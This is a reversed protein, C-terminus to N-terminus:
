KSRRRRYAIAGALGLGLLVFTSPEPVATVQFVLDNFDGAKEWVAGNHPTQLTTYPQLSTWSDEVALILGQDSQLALFHQRLPDYTSEYSQYGGPAGPSPNAISSSRHAQSYFVDLPVGSGGANSLVTGDCVARWDNDVCDEPRGYKLFFGFGAASPDPTFIVSSGSPSSGDFLVAGSILNGGIDFSYWGFTLNNGTERVLLSIVYSQSGTFYLDHILDGSESGYWSVNSFVPLDSYPSTNNVISALGRPQGSVLPYVGDDQSANDWPVGSSGNCPPLGTTCTPVGLWVGGSEVYPGATLSAVFLVLGAVVARLCATKM